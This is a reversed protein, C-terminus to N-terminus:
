NTPLTMSLENPRRVIKNSVATIPDNGIVAIPRKGIGIRLDYTVCRAAM